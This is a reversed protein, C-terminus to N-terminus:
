LKIGRYINSIKTKTFKLIEIEKQKLKDVIM